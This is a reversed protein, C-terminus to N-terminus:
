HLPRSQATKVLAAEVLASQFHEISAPRAAIGLSLSDIVVQRLAPTYAGAVSELSSPVLDRTARGLCDPPPHGMMCAYLCAGVAYFDTWPGQSSEHAMAEPASFGPTFAPRLRPGAAGTPGPASVQEWPADALPQAADFDLLVLGGELTMLVNSPKIDLHLLGADHVVALAQLLDLGVSIVAEDSLCARQAGARLRAAVIHSQLTQGELYPSVLYVTEHALVCDIVNAVAPHQLLALNRASDLFAYLSKRVRDVTGPRVLPELQGPPRHMLTAPLFEKLLVAEGTEAQALYVLSSGGSALFRVVRYAGVASGAPLPAPKPKAM